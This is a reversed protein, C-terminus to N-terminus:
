RAKGMANLLILAKSIAEGAGPSKMRIKHRGHMDFEVQGPVTRVLTQVEVKELERALELQVMGEKVIARDIGFEASLVRIRRLALLHRVPEPHKGFRDSLDAAIKELSEVSKADAISKYLNIKERPDPVYDEPLYAEIDTVMKPERVEETQIGKLERVAEELLSCYLEFGVSIIFGSQQSGLLDGAGRIELDRLALQYGSGLDEFEEMAKLRKQAQETVVRHPPLLLYAYAKRSSRGVRGRLQYLQSLGFTDGRNIVITNVNPLDLGSEIIMTSVLVDYENDLFARMVSELAREPMQGHAVAIRLHPVLNSIHSAMSDITAVRNHVFFSQGGRDAEQMLAHAIVDDRFELVETQIPLRDRPPTLILSMDRGGMLSFHMTRPIPTATLTLCDITERYKKLKEKAKVGFLQEEDIILLGLDKFVVSKGLIKHTGILVDIQGLELKEFVEKTEKATRFRSVYDVVVPMGELRKRFSEYHQRALLTTPVLIAVQKGDQAAKFAARIAVETKGYGVDGCILRDMPHDTEMDTKVDEIARLQDPTEDYPFSAELQKQYETDVSYTFGPRSKRISYTKILEEAMDKISKKVKAKTKAWSKGGMKSLQPQASDGGAYKQVKMLQDVPVYLIDGGSYELSLCDTEQGDVVLRNMGIYKGIGHEVHVVFDGTSLALLEKISLGRAFRRPPTRRRSRSFIEHDTLVAFGEDPMLFGGALNGVHFEAPLRHLLEVLRDRHAETDCLIYMEPTREFLTRLYGRTRDLERGFTEPPVTGFSFKGADSGDSEDIRAEIRGEKTSRDATAPGGRAHAKFDAHVINRPPTGSGATDPSDGSGVGRGDGAGNGPGNGAGSGPGGGTGVGDGAGDRAGDRDDEDNPSQVTPGIGSGVYIRKGTPLLDAIEREFFFLEEPAGPPLGLHGGLPDEAHDVTLMSYAQELEAQWSSHRTRVYTPGDVVTITDAALYDRLMSLHVGLSPLTWEIGELTGDTELSDVIGDWREPDTGEPPNERVKRIVDAGPLWEWIPLLVVEQLTEVSRQSYADFERISLVEDGDFEIRIPNNRGFSFVDLIGGRRSVEGYESVMHVPQFGDGVLLEMVFDLDVSEGVGIRHISRAFVSRDPVPTILSIATVIIVRLDSCAPLASRRAPESLAALLEIRNARLSLKPHRAHYPDLGPEPLIAVSGRGLLFQIDEKLDEATALDPVVVVTERTRDKTLGAVFLAKSSGALGRLWIPKRTSDDDELRSEVRRFATTRRFRDVLAGAVPPRPPPGDQVTKQETETDISM